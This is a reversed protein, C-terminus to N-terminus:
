PSTGPTTSPSRSTAATPACWEHCCNDRSTTASSPTRGRGTTTGGTRVRILKLDVIERLTQKSLDATLEKYKPNRSRNLELSLLELLATLFEQADQQAYGSFRPKKAAVASKIESPTESRASSNKVLQVLRGYAAAVRSSSSMERSHRNDLFYDNFSPLNLM